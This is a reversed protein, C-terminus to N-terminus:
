ICMSYLIFYEYDFTDIRKICIRLLLRLVFVLLFSLITVCTVYFIQKYLCTLVPVSDKLFIPNSDYKDIKIYNDNLKQKLM